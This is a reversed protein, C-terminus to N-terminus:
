GGLGSRARTLLPYRSPRRGELGRFQRLVKGLSFDAENEVIAIATPAETTERVTALLTGIGAWPDCITKPHRDKVLASVIPLLLPPVPFVGRDGFFRVILLGVEAVDSASLNLNQDSIRSALLLPTLQERRSRFEDFIALLANSAGQKM